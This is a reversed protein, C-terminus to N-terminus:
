DTLSPPLTRKGCVVKGWNRNLYPHVRELLGNLYVLQLGLITGRAIMTDDDAETAHLPIDDGRRPDIGEWATAIVASLISSNDDCIGGKGM